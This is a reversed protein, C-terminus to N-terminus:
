VGRPNGLISGKAEHNAFQSKLENNQLTMGQILSKIEELTADLRGKVRALSGDVRTIKKDRKQESEKLMSELRNYDRTGEAM